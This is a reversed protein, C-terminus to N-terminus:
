GILHLFIAFQSNVITKTLTSKDNQSNPTYSAGAQSRAEDFSAM